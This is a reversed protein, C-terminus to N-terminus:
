VVARSDPVKTVSYFLTLSRFHAAWFKASFPPLMMLLEVPTEIGPHLVVAPRFVQRGKGARIFKPAECAPRLGPRSRRALSPIDVQVPATLEMAPHRGPRLRRFPFPLGCQVSQLRFPLSTWSSISFTLMEQCGPYSDVFTEAQSSRVFGLMRLQSLQAFM